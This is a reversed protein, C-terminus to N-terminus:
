EGDDMDISDIRTLAGYDTIKFLRGPSRISGLSRWNLRANDDDPTISITGCDIYTGGQDDSVELTVDTYTDDDVDGISGQLQIGYCRESQYGKTVAQGQVVRQYPRPSDAGLLSDDDVEGDPDLFYLSGNGDDGVVINSGYGGGQTMGGLWNAGNYARWLDGDGSGWVYWSESYTDYILTERNGLRLVYFDHGDLTFTWARVQPDNVRGRAAILVLAQSVRISMGDELAALALAQSVKVGDAPYAGAALIVAQSARIDTM